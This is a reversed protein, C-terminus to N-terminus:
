ACPGGVSIVAGAGIGLSPLGGKAVELAYRYPAAASYLPCTPTTLCPEMDTQSVFRGGSDFWAISLPLPTDKMYFQVTTDAPFVFLMGDYGALDTRGMLGREQQLPTEALLACRNVTPVKSVRYAISGFGAVTPRTRSLYPDPPRNAGKVIFSVGGALLLVVIMWQLAKPSPVRSRRPRRASAPRRAPRDAAPAPPPEAPAVDPDVDTM